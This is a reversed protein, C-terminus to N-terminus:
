FSVGGSSWYGWGRSTRQPDIMAQVGPNSAASSPITETSPYLFLLKYDDGNSRYYFTSSGSWQMARPLSTVVEPVLGPIFTDKTVAGQSRWTGGTSPYTGNIAQYSKIAKDLQSLDSNISAINARNQIGNYAVIVIAALIGIVVIVILLEVITFGSQKNQKNLDGMIRM